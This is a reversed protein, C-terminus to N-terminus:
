FIKKDWFGKFMTSNYLFIILFVLGFIMCIPTFLLDRVTVYGGSAKKEIFILIVAVLGLFLWIIAITIM